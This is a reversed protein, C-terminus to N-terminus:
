SMSRATPANLLKWRLPPNLSGQHSVASEVELTYVHWHVDYAYQWDRQYLGVDIFYTGGPLDLRALDLVIQGRDQITPTVIGMALTNTDLYTQGAENSITVGFIPAAIPQDAGYDIQVQLADGANIRNGPLLQVQLIEAELSGFRNQHLQLQENAGSKARTPTRRQTEARLESLYQGAVIEPSGYARIEGQQLWLVQDCLEQVQDVSHSILVIACGEAKLQRIRDLCKTQFALDGVSLFEDVLLIQPDTHIATAFALRMQMGTSYTRTPRDIFTSLEAFEVIAEFRQAVQRRTLGAFVASGYVNERGTLDPHFSSGLDLLAGIRGRARVQGQDPRLIGGLLQLLTSKGAGNKGIVGLMEGPAVSFEISRLAWFQAQPRLYRFGALAAEMITQPRDSHYAAYRKGLNHVTIAPQM